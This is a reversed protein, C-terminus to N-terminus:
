PRSGLVARLTAEREAKARLTLRRNAMALADGVAPQSLLDNSAVVLAGPTALASVALLSSGSSYQATAGGLKVEHYRDQVLGIAPVASRLAFVIPHYRTSVVLACRRVAHVADAIQDLPPREVRAALARGVRDLIGSDAWAGAEDRFHPILAVSAGLHAALEDIRAGVAKEDLGASAPSHHLTVGIVPARRTEDALVPATPVQDAFVFADDLQTTAEVGLVRALRASTADRVGVHDAGALLERVLGRDEEALDPGITQGTLVIRVGAAQAARGIAVRELLRDRFLSTLNGAGSFWVVDASRITRGLAGTPGTSAPHQLASSLEELAVTETAPHVLDPLLVADVDHLRRTAAPFASAVVARRAGIGDILALNSALMAEDGVHWREGPRDGGVDAVLLIRGPSRSQHGGM